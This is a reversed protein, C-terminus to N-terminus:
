DQWHANTNSWPIFFGKDNYFDCFWNTIGGCCAWNGDIPDQFQSTLFQISLREKQQLQHYLELEIAGTNAWM